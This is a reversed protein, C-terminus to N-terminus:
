EINIPFNFKIDIEENYKSFKALIINKKQLRM